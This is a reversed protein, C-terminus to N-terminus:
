FRFIYNVDVPIRQELARTWYDMAILLQTTCSRGPMFGHQNVSLLHNSNLHDYIEDKIISEMLRVISSTLSIPRYNNPLHRNGKKFIPTVCASKWDHPLTGEDLSKSFLISLPTCIQEATEKLALLPWGEPGPSKAPNINLLKKYVLHPSISVTQLLPVSTNLTFSPISSM